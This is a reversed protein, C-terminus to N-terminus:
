LAELYGMMFGAEEASLNDDEFLDVVGEETYIDGLMLVVEM